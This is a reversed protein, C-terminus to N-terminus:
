SVTKHAYSMINSADPSYHNGHADVGTGIYLCSNNAWRNPDAPTDMIYDGCTTGNSGDVLEACQNTDGGGENVTGHHTHYLGLCHGMEHPLTSTDYYSGHVILATSPIGNALGAGSM